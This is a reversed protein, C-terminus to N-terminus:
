STIEGHWVRSHLARKGVFYIPEALSEVDWIALDCWAGARLEGCEGERGLARAAHRTVGLWCEAVTMHFCVTALNMALLLSAMPSTGPNCDTAVALPVQARRLAEIPPRQRERLFHYAGPLMVAVTGAAALARVGQEDTYELHDASLARFEAALAAGGGNSLQDAHLKVRLGHTQAARFVDRIQPPSFALHECYADVADALQERAITPIMERCVLQVFRGPESAYEVPLAHAALLTRAVTVPINQQLQQAALLQRRETAVDLGYGSKVELTTVGEAVLAAVRSASERLLQEDTSARTAAVTARIGGGSAAIDAYSEGALRREFETARSGAYVLHTHCDVLGPTLWRGECDTRVNAAFESPMDAEAGCWVVRGNASAVAGREIVGLGPLDARMTALRANCWLRDIQM